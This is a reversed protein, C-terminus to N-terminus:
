YCGCWGPKPLLFDFSHAIDSIADALDHDFVQVDVGLLDDFLRAEDLSVRASVRAGGASVEACRPCGSRNIGAVWACCAAVPEQQPEAVSVASLQISSRRTTTVPIPITVGNPQPTSVVQALM